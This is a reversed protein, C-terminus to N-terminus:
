DIVSYIYRSSWPLEDEQMKSFPTEYGNKKYDTFLFKLIVIKEKNHFDKKSTGAEFANFSYAIEGEGLSPHYDLFPFDCPIYEKGEFFYSGHEKKLEELEKITEM